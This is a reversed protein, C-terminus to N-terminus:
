ALISIPRYSPIQNKMGGKFIPKVRAIKLSDPYIGGLLCKNFLRTLIPILVHAGWKLIKPPIKDVGVGKGEDLEKICNGVRSEPITHLTEHNPNPSPLYDSFSVNTPALESALKAGM